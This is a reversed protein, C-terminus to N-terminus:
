PRMAYGCFINNRWIYLANSSFSGLRSSTQHVYSGFKRFMTGARFPVPSYTAKSLHIGSFFCHLILVPTGRLVDMLPPFKCLSSLLLSAAQNESDANKCALGLRAGNSHLMRLIVLLLSQAYVLAHVNLDVDIQPSYSKASLPIPEKDLMGDTVQDCSNNEPLNLDKMIEISREDVEGDAILGAKILERLWGAAFKDHENYYATV